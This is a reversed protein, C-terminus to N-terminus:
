LVQLPSIFVQLAPNNPRSPYSFSVNLFEIKGEVNPPSLSGTPTIKPERVLYEFVKRSAGVGEM